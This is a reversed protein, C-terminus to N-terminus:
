LTYKFGPLGEVIIAGTAVMKNRAHMRLMLAIAIAM